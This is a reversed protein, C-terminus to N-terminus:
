SLNRKMWYQAAQAVIKQGKENVTREMWNRPPGMRHVAPGYIAPMGGLIINRVAPDIYVEGVRNSIMRERHAYSLTGTLYPAMRSSEASARLTVAHVLQPLRGSPKAALYAQRIIAQAAALGDTEFRFDSM